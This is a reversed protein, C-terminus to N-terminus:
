SPLSGPDIGRALTLLGELEAAGFHYQTRCFDCTVEAQGDKELMDQLEGEGLALLTAAVRRESCTCRFRLPRVEVEGPTAEPFLRRLVEPVAEGERLARAVAAHDLGAKFREFWPRDGGGLSQVLLGHARVVRGDELGITVWSASAVQESVELYVELGEAIDAHSLPSAGRYLERAPTSKMVFLHGNGIANRVRQELTAGAATADPYKVWVRLDGEATCDALIGGLNGHGVAQLSLKEEGKIHGALLAVAVLAQSAAIAGLEGAGHRAVCEAATDRVDVEIARVPVGEILFHSVRDHFFEVEASM